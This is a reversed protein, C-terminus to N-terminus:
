PGLRLYCLYFLSPWSKFGPAETIWVSVTSNQSRFSPYVAADILSFFCSPSPFRSPIGLLSSHVTYARSIVLQRETACVCHLM